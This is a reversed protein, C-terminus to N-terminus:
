QSYIQLITQFEPFLTRWRWKEKELNSQMDPTEQIEMCIKLNKTIYKQSSSDNIIQYFNLLIQLKRETNYDNQCHQNKWNFFMTYREM